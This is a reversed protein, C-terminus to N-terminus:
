VDDAGFSEGAASLVLADSGICIILMSAELFELRYPAEVVTCVAEIRVYQM